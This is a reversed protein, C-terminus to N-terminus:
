KKKSQELEWLAYEIAERWTDGIFNGIKDEIFPIDKESVSINIEDSINKVDENTIAYLTQEKKM